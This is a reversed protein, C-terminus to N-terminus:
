VLTTIVLTVFPALIVWEAYLLVPIFWRRSYGTPWAGIM